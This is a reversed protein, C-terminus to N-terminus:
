RATQDVGIVSNITERATNFSQVRLLDGHSLACAAHEAILSLTM